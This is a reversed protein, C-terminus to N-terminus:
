ESRQVIDKDEFFTKSSQRLFELLASTALALLGGAMTLYSNNLMEGAGTLFGAIVGMAIAVIKLKDYVESSIM